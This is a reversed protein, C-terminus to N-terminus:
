PEIGRISLDCIMKNNQFYKFEVDDSNLIYKGLYCIKEVDTDNIGLSSDFTIGTTGAITLESDTISRFLYNGDTKFVIVHDRLSAQSQYNDNIFEVTNGLAGESVLRFDKEYSPFWFPRLKGARRHLWIRFNWIDELSDLFFRINKTIEVYNNYSFYDIKGTNFDIVNINKDYTDDINKTVTYINFVEKDLLVDISNYQTPSQEGEPNDYNNLSEFKASLVSNCGTISRKPSSILRSVEVPCVKSSITYNNQLPSNTSISSTTFSDIVFVEYNSINEYIIGLGDEIFNGYETSVNISSDGSTVISTIARQEQFLPIGWDRDRQGYLNNNIRIIESKPIYAELSLQRRPANRLRIRQNTGNISRLINTLWSLQETLNNRYQYYLIILRSGIVDVSIDDDAGTFDFDYSANISPPGEPLITVTLSLSVLPGLTYPFSLATLDIGEVENETIDIIEKEEFYGNFINIEYTTTTIISGADILVPEVLIKYYFIDSYASAVVGTETTTIPPIIGAKTKDAGEVSTSIYYGDYINSFSIGDTVWSNALNSTVSDPLNTPIVGTKTAM